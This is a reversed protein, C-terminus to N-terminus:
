TTTSSWTWKGVELLFGWFGDFIVQKKPLCCSSIRRLNTATADVSMNNQQHFDFLRRQWQQPYLVPWRHSYNWLEKIPLMQLFWLVVVVVVAVCLWTKESRESCPPHWLSEGRGGWRTTTEKTWMESGADLLSISPSTSLKPCVACSEPAQAQGHPIPTCFLERLKLSTSIQPLFTIKPWIGAVEVSSCSVLLWVRTASSVRWPYCTQPADWEPVCHRSGSRCERCEGRIRPWTRTVLLGNIEVDSSKGDAFPVLLVQWGQQSCSKTVCARNLGPMSSPLAFGLPSLHNSLPIHLGPHVEQSLCM